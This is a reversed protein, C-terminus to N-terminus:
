KQPISGTLQNSGLDTIQTLNILNGIEPPISGTLQNESLNLSTLNILNGIEPPISGSLGRNFLNIETTSEIPYCYGWLSVMSDEDLGCPCLNQEGVYPDICSPYPPCLQNMSSYFHVGEGLVAGYFTNRWELNPM